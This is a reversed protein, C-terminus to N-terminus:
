WLRASARAREIWIVFTHAGCLFGCLVVRSTDHFCPGLVSFAYIGFWLCTPLSLSHCHGKICRRSYRFHVGVFVSVYVCQGIWWLRWWFCVCDSIIYPIIFKANARREIWVALINNLPHAVCQCMAHSLCVCVYKGEIGHAGAFPNGHAFLEVSNVTYVNDDDFNLPEYIDFAGGRAASAQINCTRSTHM